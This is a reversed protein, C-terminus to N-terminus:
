MIIIIVSEILIIIRVRGKPKTAGPLLATHYVRLRDDNCTTLLLNGKCSFFASTLGKPHVLDWVPEPKTQDMM